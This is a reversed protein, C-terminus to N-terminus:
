GQSILVHEHPHAHASIRMGKVEQPQQLARLEPRCNGKGWYPHAESVMAGICKSTDFAYKASLGASIQLFEDLVLLEEHPLM